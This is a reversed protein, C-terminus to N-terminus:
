CPLISLPHLKQQERCSSLLLRIEGSRGQDTGRAETADDLGPPHPRPSKNGDALQLLGEAPVLQPLIAGPM